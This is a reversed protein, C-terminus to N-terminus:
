RMMSFESFWFRLELAGLDVFEADGVRQRRAASKRSCDSAQVAATSL